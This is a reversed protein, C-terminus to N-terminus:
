AIEQKANRRTPKPRLIIDIEGPKETKDGYLATQTQKEFPREEVELKKEPFVSQLIQRTTEFTFLRADTRVYVISNKAMISACDSFVRFLLDSYAIRSEFRTYEDKGNSMPRDPGGLMWLRLWQDKFYNSIAFYPPSTFLLDIRPLDGRIVKSQLRKLVKRSDGLIMEGSQLSPLGKAYRWAVREQLFKVPDLEPPRMQRERWWRVSYDPSMAKGQRMQNSLSNQIKGHLHVLIIAMLTADVNNNKWRLAKRAALLYRLVDPAYCYHFFETLIDLEAQDLDDAIRRMKHIRRIVADKLGPQLKVYGYLWGVPNIEIGIGYRQLAAAAFVSSARGAFPDLVVNGPKSFRDVVEFAFTVPFMAYYPGLGVWRGLSTSRTLNYATAAQDM